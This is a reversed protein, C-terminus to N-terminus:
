WSYMASVERIFNADDKSVVGHEVLAPWNWKSWARDLSTAEGRLDYLQSQIDQQMAKAKQGARHRIEDAMRMAVEPDISKVNYRRAVRLRLLALRVSKAATRMDASNKYAM